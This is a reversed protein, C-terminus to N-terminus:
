TSVPRSLSVDDTSGDGLRSGHQHADGRNALETRLAEVIPRMEFSEPDDVVVTILGDDVLLHVLTDRLQPVAGEHEWRQEVAADRYILLERMSALPLDNIHHWKQGTEGCVFVADPWARVVIRASRDLASAGLQTPIGIDIGGIMM